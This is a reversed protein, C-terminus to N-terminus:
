GVKEIQMFTTKTAQIFDGFTLSRVVAYIREGTKLEETPTHLVQWADASEGRTATCSMAVIHLPGAPVTVGEQLLPNYMSVRVTDPAVVKAQVMLADTGAVGIGADSLLGHSAFAIDGPVVINPPSVTVQTTVMAGAGVFGPRWSGQFRAMQPPDSGPVDVSALRDADKDIRQRAGATTVTDAPQRRIGIKRLDIDKGQQAVWDCGLAIRYLGPTHIVVKGDAELTCDVGDNFLTTTWPLINVQNHVPTWDSPFTFRARVIGAAAARPAALASSAMASLGLAAAGIKFARRRQASETTDPSKVSTM